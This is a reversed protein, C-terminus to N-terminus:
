ILSKSCQRQSNLRKIDQYCVFNLCKQLMPTTQLRAFRHVRLYVTAPIASPYSSLLELIEEVVDRSITGNRELEQLLYTVAPPQHALNEVCSLPFILPVLTSTTLAPVWLGLFMQGNSRDSYAWGKCFTDCGHHERPTRM